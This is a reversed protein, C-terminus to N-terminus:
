LSREKEHRQNQSNSREREFMKRFEEIDNRKEIVEASKQTLPRIQERIEKMQKALLQQEDATAKLYVLELEDYQKELDAIENRVTRVDKNAVKLLADYDKIETINNDRMHSLMKAIKTINELNDSKRRWYDRSYYNIWTQKREVIIKPTEIVVFQKQVEQNIQKNSLRQQLAEVTDYRDDNLSSIRISRKADPLLFSLGGRNRVKVGAQGMNDVFDDFNQSTGIMEDILHKLKDRGSLQKEYKRYSNGGQKQELNKRKIQSTSLGYELCHKNSIELLKDVSRHNDLKRKHTHSYANIIIHAHIHDKDTHVAIVYAYDQTYDAMTKKAIELALTPSVRDKKPHSQVIHFALNENGSKQRNPRGSLNEERIMAFEVAASGQSVEHTFVLSEDGMKVPDLIYDIAKKLTKKVPKMKMYAM